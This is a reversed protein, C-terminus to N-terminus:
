AQYPGPQLWSIASVPPIVGMRIEGGVYRLALCNAWTDQRYQLAIGVASNDKVCATPWQPIM